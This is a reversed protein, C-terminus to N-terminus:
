LKTLFLITILTHLLDPIFPHKNNHQIIRTAQKNTITINDVPHDLFCLAYGVQSESKKNDNTRRMREREREREADVYLCLFM